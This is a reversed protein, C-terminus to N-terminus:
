DQRWKSLRVALGVLILTYVIGGVFYALIQEPTTSVLGTAAQIIGAPYTTPAIYAIFRLNQPIVTIPYFVPPLFSLVVNLLPSYVWLDRVDRAFTSIMFGLASVLSWTIVAAFAIELGSIVDLHTDFALLVSFLVIGAAGNFLQAVSLGVVYSVPSLPSSVFMDQLRVVLRIFAAETELVICSGVIVAILGGGLAFVVKSAGAFIYIFFLITLPSVIFNVLNFPSRRIPIVGDFWVIAFIARIQEKLNM